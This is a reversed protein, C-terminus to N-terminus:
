RSTPHHEKLLFTTVLLAIVMHGALHPAVVVSASWFAALALSDLRDCLGGHGPILNSFDKIGLLRKLKSAFLDGAVSIVPITIVLFVGNGYDLRAHLLWAAWLVAGAAISGTLWGAVFGVFSKNPSVVPFFTGKTGFRGGFYWGGADTAVSGLVTLSILPLWPELTRLYIGAYMGAVVYGGFVWLLLHVSLGGRSRNSVRMLEGAGLAGVVLLTIAWALQEWIVLLPIAALGIGMVAKTKRSVAVTNVTM